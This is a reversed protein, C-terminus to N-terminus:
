EQSWFDIVMVDDKVPGFLQGFAKHAPHVLYADRDKDTAFTLVFCHTFGKDRQETSVNTGWDLSLIGPIQTKLAVFAQEVAAIQEETATEKFKISVVHFLKKQRGAPADAAMAPLVMQFSILLAVCLILLRDM